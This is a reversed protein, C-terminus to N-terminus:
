LVASNCNFSEKGDGNQCIPLERFRLDHTGRRRTLFEGDREVVDAACSEVACRSSSETGAEVTVLPRRRQVAEIHTVGMVCGNVRVQQNRAVILGCLCVTHM